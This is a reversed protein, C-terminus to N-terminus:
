TPASELRRRRTRAPGPMPASPVIDSTGPKIWAEVQDTKRAWEHLVNRREAAPAEGFLDAPGRTPVDEWRPVAVIEVDKIGDQKLRRISGAVQVEECYPAMAWVLGFAIDQAEELAMGEPRTPTMTSM